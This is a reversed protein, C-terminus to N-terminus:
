KPQISSHDALEEQVTRLLELFLLQLVDFYVVVISRLLFLLGVFFDEPASGEFWEVHFGELWVVDRM